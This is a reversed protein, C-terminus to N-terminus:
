GRGKRFIMDETLTLTEFHRGIIQLFNEMDSQSREAQSRIAMVMGVSLELAKFKEEENAYDETKCKLRIAIGGDPLEEFFVCSWSAGVEHRFSLHEKSVVTMTGCCDYKKLIQEMEMACQESVNAPEAPPQM